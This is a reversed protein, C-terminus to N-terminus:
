IRPIHFLVNKVETICRSLDELKSSNSSKDFGWERVKVHGSRPIILVSININPPTKHSFHM